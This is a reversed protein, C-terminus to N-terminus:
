VINMADYYSVPLYSRVRRKAECIGPYRIFVNKARLCTDMRLRCANNYTEGDSGCVPEYAHPCSTPCVCKPTRQGLSTDEVCDANHPCYHTECPQEIVEIRKRYPSDAIIAQIRDLNNLNVRIITGNLRFLGETVPELLLILTDSKKIEPSCPDEGEFGDVTVRQGELSQKGRM